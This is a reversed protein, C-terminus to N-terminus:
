HQIRLGLQEITQVITQTQSDVELNVLDGPKLVGFTTIALTEPILHVSFRNHEVTAGVTLSAGNLAVFGKPLVFKIWEEPAVFTLKTNNETKEVSELTVSTHIHGSLLHGGIEDGFKAAREYNVSDGADLKALNTVRLTEDIVDFTARNDSFGTVTLCTGNIAISAGTQINQLAGDPFTVTITHLNDKKQVNHVCAKGQVIGTFM